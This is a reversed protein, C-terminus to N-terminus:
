NKQVSRFLVPSTCGLSSSHDAHLWHGNLVKPQDRDASSWNQPNHKRSIVGGPSGAIDIGYGHILCPSPQSEAAADHRAFLVHCSKRNSESRIILPVCWCSSSLVANQAVGSFKGSNSGGRTMKWPNDRRSIEPDHVRM